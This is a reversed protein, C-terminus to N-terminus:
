RRGGHGAHPDAPAPPESSADPKAGGADPKAGEVALAALSAKLRSESDVLFNARSVVREGETLGSVVEVREGDSEGAQIERPAFKGEGLAVFVVTRSGSDIIADAPVRLAEREPGHLTVEGFMEPRLEGSANPFSMRVKVTRTRPDLLPDVFAVRGEFTRNPFAKLSLAAHMGQEVFRLESEYVDALVWVESLDVIEYPMTGAELRMGEVVDKRVVVGSIPSYLTLTKTAEGTQELRDIEATPIDWLQLRRRASAVLEEGTQALGGAEALRRRTQLALLYEQQASYLEPSYITFLAQGKRVPKGTYDVFVEEVFGGVKVNVHRVRTEDVAVKGATRWAGGVMGRTVEATRLGILQQRAPDIHVEALGEPRPEEPVADPAVAVGDEMRVLNMGCIPCTGPHDQVISPHMPCQWREAPAEPAAVVAPEEPPVGRTALYVAGGSLVAGVLGALALGVPGFTRRRPRPPPADNM